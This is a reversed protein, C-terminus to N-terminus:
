QWGEPMPAAWSARKSSVEEDVVDLVERKWLEIYAAGWYGRMFPTKLILRLMWTPMRRVRADVSM